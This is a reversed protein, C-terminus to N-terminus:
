VHIMRKKLPKSPAKQSSECKSADVNNLDSDNRVNNMMALRPIISTAVGDIKVYCYRIMEKPTNNRLPTDALILGDKVLEKLGDLISDITCTTRLNMWPMGKWDGTQCEFLIEHAAMPGNSRSMAFHVMAKLSQSSGKINVKTLDNSSYQIDPNVFNVGVTLDKWLRSHRVVDFLSLSNETNKEAPNNNFRNIGIRQQFASSNFYTVVPPGLSEGEHEGAHSSFISEAARMRESIPRNPKKSILDRYSDTNGGGPQKPESSMIGDNANTEDVHRDEQVACSASRPDWHNMTCFWKDPLDKAAIHSPIRRWKECKECQVWEQQKTEKPKRSKKKGKNGGAEDKSQRGKKNTRLKKDEMESDRTDDDLMRRLPEEYEAEEGVSDSLSKQLVPSSRLSKKDLKNVNGKDDVGSRKNPVTKPSQSKPRKMGKKKNKRKIKAVEEQTQEPADCANRESDTTNMTCYWKEPLNDVCPIFRWKQCTDCQVWGENTDEGNGRKKGRRLDDNMEKRKRKSFQKQCDEYDIHSLPRKNSGVKLQKIDASPNDDQNNEGPNGIESSPISNPKTTLISRSLSEEGKKATFEAKDNVVSVHKNFPDSEQNVHSNPNPNDYNDTQDKNQDKDDIKDEKKDNIRDHEVFQLLPFVCKLYWLM